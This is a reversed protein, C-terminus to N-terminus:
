LRVSRDGRYVRAGAVVGAKAQVGARALVANKQAKVLVSQALHHHLNPDQFLDAFTGSVLSNLIWFNRKIVRIWSGFFGVYLNFLM